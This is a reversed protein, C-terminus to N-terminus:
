LALYGSGILVMSGDDCSRSLPVIHPASIFSCAQGRGLESGNDITLLLESLSLLTCHSVHDSLTCRPLIACGAWAMASISCLKGAPAAARTLRLHLQARQSVVAYFLMCLYVEFKTPVGTCM